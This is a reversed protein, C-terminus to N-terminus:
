LYGFKAGSNWAPILDLSTNSSALNGVGAECLYIWGNQYYVMYGSNNYITTIDRFPLIDADLIPPYIARPFPLNFISQFVYEADPLFKLYFRGCM